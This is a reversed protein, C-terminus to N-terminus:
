FLLARWQSGGSTEPPKCSAIYEDEVASPVSTSFSSSWPGEVSRPPTQYADRTVRGYAAVRMRMWGGQVDGNGLYRAIIASRFNAILQM